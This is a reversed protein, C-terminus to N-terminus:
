DNNGSGGICGYYNNWGSFGAEVCVQHMEIGKKRNREGINVLSTIVFVVVLTVAIIGALTAILSKTEM